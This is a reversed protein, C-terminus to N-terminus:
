RGIREIMVEAREAETTFAKSSDTQAIQKDDILVVGTLADGLCRVLKDLDPTGAHWEPADDRLLHANKGTRFHSKPRKFFFRVTLKVPGGILEGQYASAAADRVQGMWEGSNKNADRAVLVPRGDPRTVVGGGRKPIFSAVKSGRQQARGVVVFSIAFGIPRELTLQM